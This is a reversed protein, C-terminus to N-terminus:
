VLKPNFPQKTKLIGFIIHVLKRMLAGIIAKPKLGNKELRQIFPKFHENFRKLSLAPMYLAKRIRADGLKSLRTKGIFKGSQKQQPTVGIYAALQKANNFAHIDPIYALFQYATQKGVGKISTILEVQYNYHEEKEVKQEVKQELVKLQAELQEIMEQLKRRVSQIRTCSLKNKLQQIQAKLMQVLEIWERIEKQEETKPHYNEPRMAQAYLAIIRADLTDNKNRTLKAKAFHKIKLPNVVNVPIMKNFLFDAIEESYHGTAEMCVWPQSTYKKIWTLFSKFGGETREFINTLFLCVDFKDKSVDVGIFNFNDM